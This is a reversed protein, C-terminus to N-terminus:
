SLSQLAEVLEYAWILLSKARMFLSKPAVITLSYAGSHLFILRHSFMTLAATALPMPTTTCTLHQDAPDAVQHRRTSITQKTQPSTTLHPPAEQVVLRQPRRTLLLNVLKKRRRLIRCQRWIHYVRRREPTLRQSVSTLIRGGTPPPHRFGAPRPVCGLAVLRSALWLCQSFVSM